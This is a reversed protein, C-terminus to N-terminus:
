QREAAKRLLARLELPYDTLIGDLGVSAARQWNEPLNGSVTAGAIFSSKKAGVVAAIQQQPPLYRFYVWDADTAALAQEFEEPRNAVAATQAQASAQKLRNRVEPESITRGIFLLRHLVDYKKALQVVEEEVGAAKLDVTVLVEKQRHDAVLKMVEEVTPVREGAFAEDFWSGADLQRIEEATFDAVKGTGDTTRDVTSDHICVLQGDKTREVDFEFGLGLELCARFNSLTNEPAHKLLGRHAVIRPRHTQSHSAGIRKGEAQWFVLFEAVTTPFPTEPTVGVPQAGARHEEITHGFFHSIWGDVRDNGRDLFQKMEELTCSLPFTEEVVLPKGIDYVALAAIAQDVKGKEPYAHISVFDFHKAVEPAYFIPKANPWIQAWPIVGATIPTHRDQKRIAATLRAAWAEAIEVGTRGRAEESIRQVFYFGALEGGVWRPEGKKAPGGVVPENMLDYCFVAPHDACTEAIKEWWRAQVEWRETEDLKDYWVPIKDLRYCSLGTIDLYLGTQQGLELLRTLRDLQERDFESPGKLYTGFQLHVRVTNAGLRRMERFDREVRAWDTDWTDEVLRGFEGLYNFGWPVFKTNAGGLVFQRGDDSIRVKTLSPLQKRPNSTAESATALHSPLPSLSFAFLGLAISRLVTRGEAVM